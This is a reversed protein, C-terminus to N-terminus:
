QKPYKVSMEKCAEIVSEMNMVGSANRMAQEFEARNKSANIANIANNIQTEITAPKSAANGDDDKDINLNLCASICYRRMYTICSGLGQPDNKVPNMKMTSMIYEGSSHMLITTLENEGVPMQVVSLGNELLPERIADLIEPLDAYKSKFFPNTETKKIKEVAGQFKCLATSLNQISESKQLM